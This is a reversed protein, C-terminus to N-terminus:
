VAGIDQLARLLQVDDYPKPLFGAVGEGLLAEIEEGRANGTVLLVPLDERLERLARYVDPTRLGPMAFDLVVGDIAPQHARFAAIGEAGDAAEHVMFGLARLSACTSARVLPEDEVVLLGRPREGAQPDLFSSPPPPCTPAREAARMALAPLTVRMITGRPENPLVEITGGHAVVTTHVLSLGLGTGKVAGMTKTTFYPEFVRDRVAPDIGVGNDVVEIVIDQEGTGGAERPPQRRTRLIVDGESGVADRANIVLNMLMHELQSRDGQLMAGEAELESRLTVAGQFGGAAMGLVPGVVLSLPVPAFAARDRGAFGLLNRVLQIASDTATAIQDLAGEQATDRHRPRLWSIALKTVTLLNNFDHAVGAALQGISHLRQATALKREAEARARDSELERTIDFFAELVHTMTGEEDFIPKAFVRLNVKQGDRRHIVMDDVTVPGRAALVREFPMQDEPYVEGSPLHVGYPEVFAGRAAGEPPEIGLVERFARNTYVVEGSPVRGMWIAVPLQDAVIDAEHRSSM